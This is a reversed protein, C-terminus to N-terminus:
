KYIKDNRTTKIYIFAPFYWICSCQGKFSQRLNVANICKPGNLHGSQRRNGWCKFRETTNYMSDASVMRLLGTHCICSRLTCTSHIFTCMNVWCSQYMELPATLLVWFNWREQLKRSSWNFCLAIHGYTCIHVKLCDSRELHKMGFCNKISTNRTEHSTCWFKV